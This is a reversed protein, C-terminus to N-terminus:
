YSDEDEEAVRMMDAVCRDYPDVDNCYDGDHSPDTFDELEEHYPEDPYAWSADADYPALARLRPRAPGREGILVCVPFAVEVGAEALAETDDIQGVMDDLLGKVELEVDQSNAARVEVNRRPSASARRASAVSPLSPASRAPPCPAHPSQPPSLPPSTVSSQPARTPPESTDDDTVKCNCEWSQHGVGFTEHECRGGYVEMAYDAFRENSWVEM